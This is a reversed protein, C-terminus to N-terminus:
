SKFVRGYVVSGVWEGKCEFAREARSREEFGLRLALAWSRTNRPDCEIQMDVTGDGAHWAALQTVFAKMAETAFGHGQATPLFSFWLQVTKEQKESGHTAPEQEGSPVALSADPLSPTQVCAGVRGIFASEYVVALEVVARGTEYSGRIGRHIYQRTEDRTWPQWTQYRANDANSELTFLDEEDQLEYERLLLRPTPIHQWRSTLTPNWLASAEKHSFENSATLIRQLFAAKSTLYIKYDHDHKTARDKIENYAVRLDPSALLTDRVARLARAPLSTQACLYIIHPPTSEVARLVMCDNVPSARTDYPVKHLLTEYVNMINTDQACICIDLIPQASLGAVATSGIHEISIGDVNQLHAELTDKILTSQASWQSSWPVITLSMKPVSYIATSDAHRM